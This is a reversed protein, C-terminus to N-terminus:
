NLSQALDALAARAGVWAQAQGLWDGMADQVPQPLANIEGVAGAVDGEALAAEARSLTADASAGEHPGDVSRAGTQVKLFSTFRSMAGQGEAEMPVAVALAARAAAPFASRLSDLGPLDGTLAEPTALGAENLAALPAEPSTGSDLAARLSALAGEARAKNATEEAAATMEAAQARASDLETRVESLMQRAQAEAAALAAPAAGPVAAAAPRAELEALRTQQTEMAQRLAALEQKMAGTAAPDGAAAPAAQLAAVDSALAGIRGGQAAVADLAEQRAAAIQPAYDVPAPTEALPAGIGAPRWAEPLNPMGYWMAGAGLGAAVVGGLATSVFGGKRVEVIKGVPKEAPKEATKEAAKEAVKGDPKVPPEKLAAPKVDVTEVKAAGGTASAAAKTESPPKPDSAAKSLGAKDTTKAPKSM